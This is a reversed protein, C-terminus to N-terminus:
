WKLLVFLHFMSCVCFHEFYARSHISETLICVHMFQFTCQHLLGNTKKGTSVYFCTLYQVLKVVLIQCLGFSQIETVTDEQIRFCVVDWRKCKVM